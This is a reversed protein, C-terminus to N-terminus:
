LSFHIKSYFNNKVTSINKHHENIHLSVIDKDEFIGKDILIEAAKRAKTLTKFENITTQSKDTKKATISFM